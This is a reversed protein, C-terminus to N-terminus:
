IRRISLDDAQIELESKDLMVHLSFRARSSLHAEEYLWWQGRLGRTSGRGHVASFTLQLRRGRFGGLAHKLDVILTLTAHASTASEVQGDHLGERCLRRVAAPLLSSIIKLYRGYIKERRQWERWARRECGSGPQIGDYLQRTVFIM